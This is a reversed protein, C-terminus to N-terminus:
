PECWRLIPQTQICWRSFPDFVGRLAIKLAVRMWLLYESLRKRFGPSVVAAVEGNLLEQNCGTAARASIAHEVLILTIYPREAGGAACWNFSDSLRKPFPTVKKRKRKESHHINWKETARRWEAESGSQRVSLGKKEKTRKKRTEVRPEFTVYELCTHGRCRGSVREGGSGGDDLTRGGSRWKLRPLSLFQFRLLSSPGNWWKARRRNDTHHIGKAGRSFIIPNMLYKERRMRLLWRITRKQAWLLKGAVLTVRKCKLFFFFFHLKSLGWCQNLNSVARICNWRRSLSFIASPSPVYHFIHSTGHSRALSAGKHFDKFSRRLECLQFM